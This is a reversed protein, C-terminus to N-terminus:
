QAKQSKNDYEIRILNKYKEINRKANKLHNEWVERIQKNSKFKAIEQKALEIQEENQRIAYEADEKSPIYKGYNIWVSNSDVDAKIKQIQEEIMSKFISNLDSIEIAVGNFDIEDVFEVAFDDLGRIKQYNGFWYHYLLFFLNGGQKPNGGLLYNLSYLSQKRINGNRGILNEISEITLGTTKSALKIDNSYDSQETLFYDVDCHLINCINMLVSISPVSRENFNKRFWNKATTCIDSSHTREYDEFFKGRRKSHPTDSYQFDLLDIFKKQFNDKYYDFDYKRM